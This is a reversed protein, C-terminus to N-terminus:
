GGRRPVRRERSRTPEGADCFGGGGQVEWLWRDSVKRRGPFESFFFTTVECEALSFSQPAESWAIVVNVANKVHCAETSIAHTKSRTTSPDRLSVSWGAGGSALFEWEPLNRAAPGRVGEGEPVVYVRFTASFHGDWLTVKSVQAPRDLGFYAAPGGNDLWCEQRGPM